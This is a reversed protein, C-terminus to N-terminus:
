TLGADEAVLAALAAWDLDGRGRAVGSLLSDRLLSALPMPVEAADAAALALRVDKLGRRMRMGPPDFRGEVIQKAYTPFAPSGLLTGSLVEELAAAEVGSKRALAFAEGLARIMSALVFNGCLKVLNAAPADDGLEFVRDGLADFLPRCRRIGEPDGAAVIRLRAAEAADPRGFVPAAVYRQGRAQHRAAVRRSLSVGVTSMGLHVAGEVLVGSVGRPPFVVSGLARDDALMTVAVEAGRLADELADAVEVGDAELPAARERTRNWAVVAHGARALNRAMPLGMRGTGVFAIRM